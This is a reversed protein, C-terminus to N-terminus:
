RVGQELAVHAQGLEALERQLESQRRLLHERWNRSRDFAADSLTDYEEQEALEDDVDRLENEVRGLCFRVWVRRFWKM